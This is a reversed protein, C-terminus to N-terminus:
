DKDTGCIAKNAWLVAEELKTIALAKGRGEPVDSRLFNGLLLAKSRVENMTRTQADSRPQNSFRNDM